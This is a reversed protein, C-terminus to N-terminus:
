HSSKKESNESFIFGYSPEPFIYYERPSSPLYFKRASRTGNLVMQPILVTCNNWWEFGCYRITEFPADVQIFFSGFTPNIVCHFIYLLMYMYYEIECSPLFM